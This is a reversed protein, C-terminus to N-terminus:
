LPKQDPNTIDRSIEAPDYHFLAPIFSFFRGLGVKHAVTTFANHFGASVERGINPNQSNAFHRPSM